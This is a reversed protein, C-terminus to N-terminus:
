ARMMAELERLEEAAEVGAECRARERQEWVPCGACDASPGEHRMTPYPYECIWVAATRGSAGCPIQGLHCSRSRPRPVQAVLTRPM